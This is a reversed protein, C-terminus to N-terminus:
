DALCLYQQNLPLSQAGGGHLNGTRSCLEPRIDLVLTVTLPPGLSVSHVRVNNTMIIEDFSPPKSRDLLPHEINYEKIYAQWM